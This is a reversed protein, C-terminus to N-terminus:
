EKFSLLTLKESGTLCQIIMYIVDFTKYLEGKNLNAKIRTDMPIKHKNLHNNISIIRNVIDKTLGDNTDLITPEIEKLRCIALLVELVDRLIKSNFKGSSILKEDTKQLYEYISNIMIEIVLPNERYINIIWNHDYWCVSSVARLVDKDCKKIIADCVYGLVDYTEENVIRSAYILDQSENEQQLKRIVAPKRLLLYGSNSLFYKVDHYFDEIKRKDYNYIANLIANDYDTTLYFASLKDFLGGNFLQYIIGKIEKSSKISEISNFRKYLNISLPDFLVTRTLFSKETKDLYSGDGDVIRLLYDEVINLHASIRKIEGENVVIQEDLFEPYKDNDILDTDVWEAVFEMDKSDDVTEAILSYSDENGYKYKVTLKVEKDETLPFSDSTFKALQDSNMTGYSDKILPLFVAEENRPIILKEKVHIEIEEDLVKTISITKEDAVLDIFAYEGNKKVRLRLKPLYEEWLPERNNLWNSVDIFCSMVDVNSLFKNNKDAIVSFIIKTNAPLKNEKVYNNIEAEYTKKIEEYIEDDFIIRVPLQEDCLIIPEHKEFLEQMRRSVILNEKTENKIDLYYKDDLKELYKMCFTYYSLKISKKAIGRRVFIERNYEKNKKTFLTVTSSEKGDLDIVAYDNSKEQFLNNKQCYLMAAVSRPMPFSKIGPIYMKQRLKKQFEDLADPVFYIFYTCKATVDSMLANIILSISDYANEKRAVSTNFVSFLSYENKNTLESSHNKLFVHSEKSSKQTDDVDFCTRCYGYNTKEDNDNFIYSNNSLDVAIASAYLAKTNKSSEDSINNFIKYLVLEKLHIFKEKIIDQREKIEVTGRDKENSPENLENIQKENKIIENNQAPEIEIDMETNSVTSLIEANKKHTPITDIFKIYTDIYRFFTDSKVADSIYVIKIKEIIGEIDSVSTISFFSIGEQAKIFEEMFEFSEVIKKIKKNRYNKNTRLWKKFEDIREM